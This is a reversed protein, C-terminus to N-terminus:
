RAAAQPADAAAAGFAGAAALADIRAQDYGLLETLVQMTQAGLEPAAVPAVPPTRHLRVPLGVNPISGLRPHPIESLMGRAAIEPAALAEPVTRIAGAPVGADHMRKLLDDREGAALAAAVVPMLDGRNDRRAASTAFRPDAPLDPRGLVDNALRQFTRDNACALYLPGTRTEFTGVPCATPQTNGFRTPCQGSGLHAMSFNGLMSVATEILTAEVLQGRGDRQRAILAAMIANSAMMATSMDMISPGARVAPQDPFGNMSMFGSEAQAIPDFGIRGAAPGERGYASITCYVLGPNRASLTDYDLGLRAMVGTSFNEALVDARDAIEQAIQRGGASKLDLAVSSKNRNTWLYPLSEGELSPPYHRFGDGGLGEIKIVEAGLDALIQTCYPGAIFHTFDAVRIGSLPAPATATRPAAPPLTPRDTDQSM